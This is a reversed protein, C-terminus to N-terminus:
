VAAIELEVKSVPPSLFTPFSKGKSLPARLRKAVRSGTKPRGGYSSFIGLFDDEANVTKGV